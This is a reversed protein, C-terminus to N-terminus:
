SLVEVIKGEIAAEGGTPFALEAGCKNCKVVTAVKSYIMQDNKCKRCIVRMYKSKPMEVNNKM